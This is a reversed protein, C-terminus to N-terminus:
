ALAPLAVGCRRLVEDLLAERVPAHTVERARTLALEAETDVSPIREAATMGIWDAVCGAHAEPHFQLGVAHRYAFAQVTEDARALVEAEPPLRVHDGHWRVWPGRWVPAAVEAIESWGAFFRGTAEVSGGIAAALLQAGFCIGLVGRGAAVAEGLYAVQWRIWEDGDYVAKPSGLTVIFDAADLVARHAALGPGPLVELRAGRQELAAGLLGAPALSSNEIVAVRMWGGMGLWGMGLWQGYSHCCRLRSALAGGDRLFDVLCILRARASDAAFGGVNVSFAFGM